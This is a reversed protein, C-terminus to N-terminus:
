AVGGQLLGSGFTPKSDFAIHVAAAQNPVGLKSFIRSKHQEVTKPSIGLQTAVQKGALGRAVLALVESERKTLRADSRHQTVMGPALAAALSLIGRRPSVVVGYDEESGDGLVVVRTGTRRLRVALERSAVLEGDLVIADVRESRDRLKRETTEIGVVALCPFRDLAAALGEAIMPSRHAILVTRPRV